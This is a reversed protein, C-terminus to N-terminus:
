SCHVGLVVALTLFGVRDLFEAEFLQGLDSIQL